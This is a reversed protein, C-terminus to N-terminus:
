AAEIRDGILTRADEALQDSIEANTHWGEVLREKAFIDLKTRLAALDPAPALLLANLADMQIDALRATEAEHAINEPSGCLSNDTVASHHDMDAAARNYAPLLEAWSKPGAQPHDRENTRQRILDYVAERGCLADLEFMDADLRKGKPTLLFVEDGRVCYVGGRKEFGDLWDEPDFILSPGDGALRHIDAFMRQVATPGPLADLESWIVDFKVRLDALSIAPTGILSDYASFFAVDARNEEQEDIDEPLSHLYSRASVFNRTALKFGYSLGADGHSSTVQADQANNNCNAM